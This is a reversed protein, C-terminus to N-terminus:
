VGKLLESLLTSIENDTGQEEEPYDDEYDMDDETSERPQKRCELKDKLRMVSNNSFYVKRHGKVMVYKYELEGKAKYRRITSESVELYEKTTKINWWRLPIQGRPYEMETFLEELPINPLDGYM